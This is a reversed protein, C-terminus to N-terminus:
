RSHAARVLAPVCQAGEDRHATLRGDSASGRLVGSGHVEGTAPAQGGARRACACRAPTGAHLVRGSTATARDHSIPLRGGGEPAYKADTGYISRLRADAVVLPGSNCGECFLNSAVAGVDRLEITQASPVARTIAARLNKADSQSLAPAANPDLAALGTPDLRILAVNRPLVPLRALRQALVRNTEPRAEVSAGLIAAATAVTVSAVLVIRVTAPARYRAAIAAVARCGPLSGLGGVIWRSAAGTVIVGVVVLLPIITLGAFALDFDTRITRAAGFVAVLAVVVVGVRIAVGVRRVSRRARSVHAGRERSTPLVASLALGGFQWLLFQTGLRFSSSPDIAQSSAAGIAAGVLAAGWGLLLAEFVGSM